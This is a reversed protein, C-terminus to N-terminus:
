IIKFSFNNHFFASYILFLGILIFGVAAAISIKNVIKTESLTEKIFHTLTILLGDVILGVCAIILVGIAIDKTGLEGVPVLTPTISLFFFIPLPNALNTFLGLSYNQIFTKKTSVHNPNIILNNKTNIINKIGLYILYSGGIIKLYLSASSFFNTIFSIGLSAILFFTICGTIIGTVIAFGALFGSNLTTTIKLAQGPGPKIWLLILSIIFIWTTEITM